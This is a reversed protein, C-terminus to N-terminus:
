VRVARVVRVEPVYFVWRGGSESYEREKVMIEQAHNWAFM